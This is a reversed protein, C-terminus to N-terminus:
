REGRDMGYASEGESLFSLNRGLDELCIRQRPLATVKKMPKRLYRSLRTQVLHDGHDHIRPRRGSTRSRFDDHPRGVDRRGFVEDFDVADEEGNSVVDLDRAGGPESHGKGTEKGDRELPNVYLFVELIM